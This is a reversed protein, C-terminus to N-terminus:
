LRIGSGGDSDTLLHSFPINENKSVDCEITWPSSIGAMDLDVYSGDGAFNIFYNPPLINDNLIIDVLTLVDIIDYTSDQNVDAAWIMYDTPTIHGM